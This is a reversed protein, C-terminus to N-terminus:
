KKDLKDRIARVVKSIHHVTFAIFLLLGVIVLFDYHEM